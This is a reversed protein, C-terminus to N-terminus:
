AAPQLLKETLNGKLPYQCNGQEEQEEPEELDLDPYLNYRTFTFWANNDKVSACLKKEFLVRQAETCETLYLFFCFCIISKIPKM